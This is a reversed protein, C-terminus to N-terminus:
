PLTHGIPQRSTSSWAMATCCRRSTSAAWRKSSGTSITVVRVPCGPANCCWQSVPFRPDPPRDGCAVETVLADGPVLDEDPRPCRYLPHSM